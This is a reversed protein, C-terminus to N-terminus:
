GQEAKLPTLAIIRQGNRGTAARGGGELGRYFPSRVGPALRVEEGRKRAREREGGSERQAQAVTTRQQRQVAEGGSSTSWHAGRCGQRMKRVRGPSGGDCVRAQDVTFGGHVQDVLRPGLGEFKGMPFYIRPDM